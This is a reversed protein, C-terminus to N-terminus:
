DGAHDGDDDDDDGDHDGDCDEPDSPSMHCDDPRGRDRPRLAGHFLAFAQAIQSARAASIRNGPAQPDAVKLGLDRLMSAARGATLSANVDRGLDVGARSIGLAAAAQDTAQRGMARWIQLAFDGVTATGNQSAARAPLVSLILMLAPLVLWRSNKM